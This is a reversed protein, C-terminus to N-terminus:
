ARSNPTRINGAGSFNINAADAVVDVDAGVRADREENVVHRTDEALHEILEGVDLSDLYQFPRLAAEVATVRGAAHDIDDGTLRIGVLRFPTRLNRVALLVSEGDAAEEVHGDVVHDGPAHGALM